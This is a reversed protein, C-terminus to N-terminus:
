DPNELSILGIICINYLTIINYINCITCIFLNITLFQSMPTQLGLLGVVQLWCYPSGPSGMTHDWDSGLLRLAPLHHLKWDLDLRLWSKVSDLGWDLTQTQTQTKIWTWLCYFVLTGTQLNAPLSFSNERGIGQLEPWVKLVNSLGVWM